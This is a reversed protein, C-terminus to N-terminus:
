SCCGSHGEEGCGEGCGESCSEGCSSGCGRGQANQLEEETANRVNLVEVDFTLAMGALPHNGDLMVHDDEIGAVIVVTAGNPTQVRLPIGVELGQIERFQDRPVKFLLDQRYEGYADEPKITATFVNKPSKGELAAELGKILSNTGQVYTLPEKGRSTELMEGNENTLTYEITVAKDKAVKM